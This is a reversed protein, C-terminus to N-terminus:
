IISDDWFRNKRLASLWRQCVLQGGFLLAACHTHWPLMRRCYIVRLTSQEKMLDIILPETYDTRQELSASFKQDTQSM